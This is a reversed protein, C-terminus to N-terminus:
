NEAFHKNSKKIYNKTSSFWGVAIFYIIHRMADNVLLIKMKRKVKANNRSTERATPHHVIKKCAVHSEWKYKCAEQFTVLLMRLGIISSSIISTMACSCPAQVTCNKVWSKGDILEKTGNRLTWCYLSALGIQSFNEM